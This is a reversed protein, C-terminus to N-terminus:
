ALSDEAPDAVAVSTWVSALVTLVAFVGVLTRSGVVRFLSMRDCM